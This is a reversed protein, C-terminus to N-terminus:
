AIVAIASIALSLLAGLTQASSGDDGSTCMIVSGCDDDDSSSTVSVDGTCDSSTYNTTSGTSGSCTVEYSTGDGIDICSDTFLASEEYDESCGGNGDENYARGVVYDCEQGDCTFSYPYWTLDVATGTGSCDPETYMTQSGVDETCTFMSSTTVSNNMTNVCVDLPFYASEGIYVGACSTSTTPAPTEGAVPAPTVPAPTVPAPTVPAPDGSCM